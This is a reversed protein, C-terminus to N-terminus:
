ANLQGFIKGVKRPKYEPEGDVRFGGAVNKEEGILAATTLHKAKTPSDAASSGNSSSSSGGSSSNNDESSSSSSTLGNKVAGGGGGGNLANNLDNAVDTSMIINLLAACVFVFRSFFCM